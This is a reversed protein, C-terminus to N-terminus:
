FSNGFRVLRKLERFEDPNDERTIGMEWALACVSSPGHTKNASHGNWECWEAQLESLPRPPQFDGTPQPM